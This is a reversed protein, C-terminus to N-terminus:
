LIVIYCIVVWQSVHETLITMSLNRNKRELIHSIFLYLVHNIISNVHHADRTSCSINIRWAFRLEVMTRLKGTYCKTSWQGKTMTNDTRKDNYQRDKLKYNIIVEKTDNLKEWLKVLWLMFTRESQLIVNCCMDVLEDM